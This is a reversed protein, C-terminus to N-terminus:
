STSSQLPLSVILLNEDLDAVIFDRHNWPRNKLTEIIKAGKASVEEFLKDIQGDIWFQAEVPPHLGYPAADKLLLHISVENRYLVAYNPGDPAPNVYTAEFGFMTQYWEISAEVNAVPYIPNSRKWHM